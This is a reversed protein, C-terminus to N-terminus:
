TQLNSFFTPEEEVKAGATATELKKREEKILQLLEKWGEIEELTNKLPPAREAIEGISYIMRRFFPTYPPLKGSEIQQDTKDTEVLKKQL